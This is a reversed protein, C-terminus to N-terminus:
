FQVEVGFSITKPTPYQSLDIGRNSEADWGKWKTWTLLNEGQAFVRLGSLKLFSLDSKKFNYGLTAYRLRVYSADRLYFDSDGANQINSAVLSPFEANRNTPTWYDRADKSQNNLNIFNPNTFFYYDNDYRWVDLAYTFSASAFFGKHEFDFGFAGQYVPLSSKGTWKRDNDTPTETLNGDKDYFWLNGNAPNVGGSKLMYYEGVMSGERLGTLSTGNWYFGEENPIDVVTNKNYSGNFNLTVRTNNNRVVDGAIILEVGENKMSGFNSRLSTSGNIASLQRDQYLDDTQKRYVDVSGRLRNKFLGFDVGINAQTIVEWQLYPNPLQSISLSNEANYGLSSAYLTSYLNAGGFIGSNAIDQNGATGYSGRLKLDNIISGQMFEENSINWRASASWFTGWKNDNTFRFSADRRVTVSVGYRTNYDYDATGFYSFLGSNMKSLSGNAAYYDNDVSDEIWGSGNGRDFFIPDFGQKSLSTNRYHAKLYEIYVGAKVEHLDNFTKNWKLNTNSTFVMRDENIQSISGFYEQDAPKAYRSNWSDPTYYTHQEINQYDIGAQTGISWDDSLEYNLSGNVILKLENQWRESTRRKDLLLYPMASTGLQSVLQNASQYTGDYAGLELYPLSQFAGLFYNDNVYNTGTGTVMNSKSYNASVNTGYTLRGNENKGNLNNRFNFRKLGTQQLIGEHDAYGVSTFSALNKSGASFSLTHSQALADRFFVDVWNTTPANAIQSATRRRGKGPFDTNAQNQFAYYESGNMLNYNNDQLTSLSTTGVYKIELDSGFSARKTNVLIVGNAGRNGYISTAGADKLVTINDIDNPNISRFRDSSMPVGDIVYLPEVAGNISGLGRLIVTTNNDGPQGSGTSINLGPVQGQLTQLFSANPRGEITKSTVTSAAVASKPKSTTRYVDIILDELEEGAEEEVIVFNMTNSSGVTLRATKFGTFKVVLKDGPKVKLSYKGDMDTEVGFNTGEIMVSAGPVPDGYDKATVVGTVTKEQAFSLQVFLVLFLTIIWTFKSKM